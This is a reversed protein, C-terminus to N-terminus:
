YFFLVLLSSFINGVPCLDEQFFPFDAQCPRRATRCAPFVPSDQRFVYQLQQKWQLFLSASPLTTFQHFSFAIPAQSRAALHRSLAERGERKGLTDQAPIQSEVTGLSRQHLLPYQHIEGAEGLRLRCGSPQPDAGPNRRAAPQQSTPQGYASSCYSDPRFSYLRPQRFRLRM